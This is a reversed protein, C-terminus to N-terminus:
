SPRMVFGQEAMCGRFVKDSAVARILLGANASAFSNAARGDCIAKAQEYRGSASPSTSKWQDATSNCGTAALLPVSLAIALKM